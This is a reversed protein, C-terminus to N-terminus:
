AYRTDGCPLIGYAALVGVVVDDVINEFRVDVEDSATPNPSSAVSDVAM